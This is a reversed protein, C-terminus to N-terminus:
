SIKRRRADSIEAIAIVLLMAFVVAIGTVQLGFDVVSHVGVSLIGAVAGLAAARRYQDRSRLSLRSRWIIIAIFWAALLMAIIGGGAMLDLYDNHAQEVKVKGSGGQYQPIALFYAGFGVGTWPNHKILQWTSNWIEKRTAGDTATTVQQESLKSALREGGMWLVGSMLTAMILLIVLIRIVVSSRLFILVRSHEGKTSALRRSSFWALGVFLLVIVQCALGLLVGRSNSLVLGAWIIVGLALYILIHKQKVGAGVVLGALLAFSMEVLFAFVNSSLFQAYGVGPYLFPLVFGNKSDPSQLLQRLLGFLAAALGVGIVVRVTWVLRRRNSVHTLLLATFSTLALMKVATLQTQYRDITLWQSSAEPTIGVVSGPLQVTELFAYVTMLIMPLLVLLRKSQWTNLLLGEFVWMASLVFVLIEFVADWWPDVTGYPILTLVAVGLLSCFITKNLITGLRTAVGIGVNEAPLIRADPVIAQTQNKDSM